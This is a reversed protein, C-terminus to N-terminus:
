ADLRRALAAAARVADSSPGLPDIAVLVREIPREEGEHVILVPVASRRAVEEAVSGLVLRGVVGRGHTGMVLLSAGEAAALVADAPRGTTAVVEIAAGRVRPEEALVELEKCAAGTLEAQVRELTPGPSFLTTDVVHILRLTAGRRLLARAQRYAALSSES